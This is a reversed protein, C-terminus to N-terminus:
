RKMTDKTNLRRTTGSVLRLSSSVGDHHDHGNHDKHRGDAGTRMQPMAM